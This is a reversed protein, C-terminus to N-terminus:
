PPVSLCISLPSYIARIHLNRSGKIYRQHLFYWIYEIVFLILFIYNMKFYWKIRDRGPLFIFFCAEKTHCVRKTANMKPNVRIWSESKGANETEKLNSIRVFTSPGVSSKPTWAASTLFPLHQRLYALLANETEVTEHIQPIFMKITNYARLLILMYWDEFYAQMLRPALLKGLFVVSDCGYKIILMTM